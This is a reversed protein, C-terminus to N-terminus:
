SPPTLKPEWFSLQEPAPKRGLWDRGRLRFWLAVPALVLFYLMLLMLTSICWGIPLALM